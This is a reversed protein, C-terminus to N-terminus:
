GIEGSEPRSTGRRRFHIWFLANSFLICCLGAYLLLNEASYPSDERWSAAAIQQDLAEVVADADKTAFAVANEPPGNLKRHIRDFEREIKELEADNSRDVWHSAGLLCIGLLSLVIYLRHLRPQNTHSIMVRHM